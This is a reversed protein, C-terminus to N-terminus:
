KEALNIVTLGRERAMRVTQSTGSRGHKMYAVCVSSNEALYSNRKEMCGEFYPQESVYILEDANDLLYRYVEKDAEKWKSEQNVCPLAMILKVNSNQERTKLVSQAALTDYGVAGGSMYFLIGKGILENITENTKNRLQDIELGSIIRHGTFCATISKNKLSTACM